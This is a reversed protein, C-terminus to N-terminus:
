YNNEAAQVEILRVQNPKHLASCYLNKSKIETRYWQQLVM